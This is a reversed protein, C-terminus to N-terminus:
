SELFSQVRGYFLSVVLPELLLSLISSILGKPGSNKAFPTDFSARKTEQLCIVSCASEYIINRLADWKSESNIGRVNWCPINWNRSM